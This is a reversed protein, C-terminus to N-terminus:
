PTVETEHELRAWVPSIVAELVSTVVLTAAAIALTCGMWANVDGAALAGAAAAAAGSSGIALEAAILLTLLLPLETVLVPMALGLGRLTPRLSRGRVCALTSLALLFLIGLTICTPVLRASVFAIVPEGGLTRGFGARLGLMFWKGFQTETVMAAIRRLGDLPVYDSGHALWFSQWDEVAARAEAVTPNPGVRKGRGTIQSLVSSLREVRLADERSKVEGLARILEELAYTDLHLVDERRLALSRQAVRAAVRKVVPPRFDIARDQWFRNWFLVAQEPQAVDAAEAVGMRVAIPGLALAVRARANPDLTDLSPLVHPLAAGGLRVLTRAAEASGQDNAVVGRVAERSLERVGRPNLNVFLPHHLFPNKEYGPTHPGIQAMGWFAAVAAAALALLIRLFRRIARRLTM